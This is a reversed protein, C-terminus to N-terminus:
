IKSSLVVAAGLALVPIVSSLGDSAADGVKKTTEALAKGFDRAGDFPTPLPVHRENAIQRQTTELGHLVSKEEPTFPLLKGVQKERINHQSIVDLSASQAQLLRKTKEQEFVIGHNAQTIITAVYCVAAAAATALAVVALVPLAAVDPSVPPPDGGPFDFSAEEGDWTFIDRPPLAANKMSLLMPTRALAAGAANREDDEYLSPKLLGLPGPADTLTAGQLSLVLLARLLRAQESQSDLHHFAGTRAVALAQAATEQAGIAFHRWYKM